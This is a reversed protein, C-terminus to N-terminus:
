NLTHGQSAEWIWNGMYFYIVVYNWIVWSKTQTKQLGPTVGRGGKKARSQGHHTLCSLKRVDGIREILWDSLWLGWEDWKPAFSWKPLTQILLSKDWSEERQRNERWDHLGCSNAGSTGRQQEGHGDHLMPCAMMTDAWDVEEWASVTTARGM